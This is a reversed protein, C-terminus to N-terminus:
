NTDAPAAPVGGLSARGDPSADIAWRAVRRFEEVAAELNALTVEPFRQAVATFPSRGGVRLLADIRAALRDDLVRDIHDVRSLAIANIVASLDDDHDLACAALAAALRRFRQHLAHEAQEVVARYTTARANQEGLCVGATLAAAPDPAGPMAALSEAAALVAATADEGEPPGLAEIRNLRRLADLRATVAAAGRLLADREALARRYHEAYARAYRRQWGRAAGLAAALPRGELHSWPCLQEILVARDIALDALGCSPGGAPPTAPRQTDTGAAPVHAERLFRMLEADAPAAAAVRALLIADAFREPEGFAVHLWRELATARLQALPAFGERGRAFARLAEVQRDAELPPPDPHRLATAGARLFEELAASSHRHHPSWAWLRRLAAREAPAATYVATDERVGRGAVEPRIEVGLWPPVAAPLPGRALHVVRVDAVEAAPPIAFRPDWRSAHVEEVAFVVGDDDREYLVLREPPDPPAPFAAFAAFAAFAPGDPGDPRQTRPRPAM